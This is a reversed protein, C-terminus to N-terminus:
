DTEQILQEQQQNEAEHKQLMRRLSDIRAALEQLQRAIQQLQRAPANLPVIPVVWYIKGNAITLKPEVATTNKLIAIEEYGLAVELARSV